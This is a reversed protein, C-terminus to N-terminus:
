NRIKRKMEKPMEVEELLDGLVDVVDEVAEKTVEIKKKM